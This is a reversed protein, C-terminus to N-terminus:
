GKENKPQAFIELPLSIGQSAFWDLFKPVMGTPLLHGLVKGGDGIGNQHFTFLDQLVVVNGELGQIESVNIVKRSGDNMRGVHVLLHVASAIQERIARSPLEMGTMMVMTELRALADRSTNAHITSISGEHGTNMAQLMDLAERGRVEGVVIRDPRMRLSNRVLDHITIEGRGEINSPRAELRVVHKQNLRLEAADEITVIREGDPLELVKETGKSGNWQNMIPTHSAGVTAAAMDKVVTPTMFFLVEHQTQERDKYRFLHGFLPIDALWPLKRLEDRTLNNELLGGIVITQGDDVQLMTDTTKTGIIPVSVSGQSLVSAIQSVEAHITTTIRNKSDATPKIKVIVGIKKYEVTVSNPLVQVIPYEQGVLFSAENGSQTLLTPESLLKACDHDLFMQLVVDLSPTAADGIAGPTANPSASAPQIFGHTVQNVLNDIANFSMAYQVEGAPGFWRLGLKKVASSLVEAVRIRVSIQRPNKVELLNVVKVKNTTSAGACAEALQVARHLQLEDQVQGDLVVANGVERVDIGPEALLTRIGAAVIGNGANSVEVRYVETPKTAAYCITLTTIGAQKGIVSVENESLAVVDAVAPDAIALKTVKSVPLAIAESVNVQLVMPAAAAFLRESSGLLLLLGLIAELVWCGPQNKIKTNM